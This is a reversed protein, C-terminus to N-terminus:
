EYLSIAEKYQGQNNKLSGLVVYIHARDKDNRAHLLLQNYLNKAQNFHGMQFLLTGIRHWGTPGQTEMRIREILAVLQPDKDDTLTLQVEWLSSNNGIQKIEGVRFVTHMSFLIEQEENFYSMHQISAYPASKIKSDISMQFLIGVMDNVTSASEAFGTSVHRNETTSLFNNFSMLGGIVKQLKEFNAISIM